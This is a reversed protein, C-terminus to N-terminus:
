RHDALEGDRVTDLTSCHLGGLMSYCHRMRVPIVTFGKQELMRIMPVQQDHVLVTSPDLSLVNMGAWPSSIHELASDVGMAKLEHFIPLRVDRHFAVESEPVPVVDGFYLKDWGAFLDPCNLPGVRANNLLVAGPRLPLITSDLHSSRYANTVHVRYRDGLVSQLWQGALRNGTSSVLYLIDEGVRIVNAADFLVEHEALRHFTEHLGGSLRAHLSDENEELATWPRQYAELYTGALRPPPAYIWRLGQSFYHEYVVGQIAYHEFLRFRSASASSILIDGFVAHLDRVNYVDFGQASWNPTRFDAREERWIPRVVKVGAKQFIAELGALDEAVEDLYWKPYARAVVAAARVLLGEESTPLEIPPVFNEVSGLIVERLPSWEDHSNIKM